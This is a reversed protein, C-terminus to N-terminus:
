MSRVIVRERRVTIRTKTQLGFAEAAKRSIKGKVLLSDLLSRKEDSMATAVTQCAVNCPFPTFSTELWRWKRVISDPTKERRTYNKAEDPTPKGYDIAEFGISVGIGGAEAIALVADSMELGPILYTTMKWGSQGGIRSFPTLSRLTGVVDEVRYQHDVFVKGNRAFYEPDAGGPVVVEDDLDIDDTTAVVELTRGDNQVKVNKGFTGALGIKADPGLMNKERIREVIEKGNM